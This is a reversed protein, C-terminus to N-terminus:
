NAQARKRVGLSNEDISRQWCRVGGAGCSFQTLDMKIVQPRDPDRECSERFSAHPPKTLPLMDLSTRGSDSSASSLLACLM